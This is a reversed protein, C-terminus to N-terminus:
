PLQLVRYVRQPHAGDYDVATANGNTATFTAGLNNWNTQNCDSNHQAQYSRGSVANWTLAFVSGTQAIIQVVIPLEVRYINGAGHSGGGSTTGYLNGDSGQVLGTVPHAGNTGNFLGLTVLVGNTTIGLVTGYGTNISGDYGSGGYQTSGYLIGGSGQILGAFPYAGNTGNFSFLTTLTGDPKVRFVTGYGNAGGHATTGYLDGDTGQVMGGYPNAGNTGNFSLLTNLTGDPNMQFVTGVETPGGAVTTGYFNGDIGLVLRGSPSAGNTRNFSALTTLDGSVSIKFITGPVLIPSGMSRRYSPGGYATTGYFDGDSGLVLGSEPYAGNTGNFSVLSTLTGNTTVQFVTGLWSAGKRTLCWRAMKLQALPIRNIRCIRCIFDCKGQRNAARDAAM